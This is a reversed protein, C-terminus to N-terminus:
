WVVIAQIISDRLTWLIATAAGASLLGAILLVAVEAGVVEAIKWRSCGMRFMMEMERARLRLSLSFVLLLALLTALGVFAVAGNVIGQLRVLDAILDAVVGGPKVADLGADKAAYRGRLLAESKADNAVVLLSSLPFDEDNGHFHFGDLNSRDIENYEMLKANAVVNSDQRELIVTQDRTTQLDEHGHGIGQIIWATKTDVFIARDDPTGAAGLVGVIRMKLPYPGALDFLAEPSSVLTDGPKLKLSESVEAGLVAEGLVAFHRGQSPRLGRLDFYDLTTGVITFGRARFRVILPIAYGLGSTDISAADAMTVPDPPPLRFYLANLVLDTARGRSGLLLPTSEGRATLQREAEAMLLSLAIPLFAILAVISVITLTRAKYFVLYRWAIYLSSKM